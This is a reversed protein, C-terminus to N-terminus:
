PVHALIQNCVSAPGVYVQPLLYGPQSTSQQSRVKSTRCPRNLLRVTRNLLASVIQGELTDQITVLLGDMNYNTNDCGKILTEKYQLQGVM